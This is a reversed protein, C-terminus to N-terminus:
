GDQMYKGKLLVSYQYKPHHQFPNSCMVKFDLQAVFQTYKGKINSYSNKVVQAVLKKNNVRIKISPLNSCFKFNLYRRKLDQIRLHLLIFFHDVIISHRKKDDM